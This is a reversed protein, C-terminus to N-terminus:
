GLGTGIAQSQLGGFHRSMELAAHIEDSILLGKDMMSNGTLVLTQFFFVVNEQYPLWIHTDAGTWLKAMKPHVTGWCLVHKQIKTWIGSFNIRDIALYAFLCPRVKSEWTRLWAETFQYEFNVQWDMIVDNFPFMKLTVPSKHPSNVPGRHIGWVFALSASSQHTRKDTGTYVASYVITLSTIQSAIPGMIVDGYHSLKFRAIVPSNIKTFKM